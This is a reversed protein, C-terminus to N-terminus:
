AANAAGSFDAAARAVPALTDAFQQVEAAQQQKARADDFARKEADTAAWSAPIAEIDGIGRIAKALPYERFFEQLATPDYQAVSVVKDLARFYGGAQEARLARNLPNDYSTSYIGGAERVEGPMDDFEGLQHM